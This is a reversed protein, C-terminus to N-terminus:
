VFSQISSTNFFASARRQKGKSLDYEDIIPYCSIDLNNMIIYYIICQKLEEVETVKYKQILQNVEVTKLFLISSFYLLLILVHDHMKNDKQILENIYYILCTQIHILSEKNFNFQFQKNLFFSIMTPFLQLHIDCIDIRLYYNVYIEFYRQALSSIDHKQHTKTIVGFIYQLVAVIIEVEQLSFLQPIKYLFQTFLRYNSSKYIITFLTKSLWFYIQDSIDKPYIFNLDKFKHNLTKAEIKLKPLCHVFFICLQKYYRKIQDRPTVIQM